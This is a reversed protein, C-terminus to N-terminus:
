QDRVALGGWRGHQSFEEAADGVQGNLATRQEEDLLAAGCRRREWNLAAVDVPGRITDTQPELEHGGGLACAGATSKAASRGASMM